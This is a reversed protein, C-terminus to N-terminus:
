QLEKCILSYCLLLHIFYLSCAFPIRYFMTNTNPLTRTATLATWENSIGADCLETILSETSNRFGWKHFKDLWYLGWLKDDLKGIHVNLLIIAIITMVISIGLDIMCCLLSKGDAFAPLTWMIALRNATTPRKIAVSGFMSQIAANFNWNYDWQCLM